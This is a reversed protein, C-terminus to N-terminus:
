SGCTGGSRRWGGARPRRRCGCRALVARGGRVGCWSSRCGRGGVPGGRRGCGRRGDRVGLWGAFRTEFWGVRVGRLMSRAGRRDPRRIGCGRAAWNRVGRWGWSWGRARVCSEGWAWLLVTSDAADGCGSCIPTRLRINTPRRSNLANRRTKTASRRAPSVKARANAATRRRRGTGVIVSVVPANNRMAPHNAAGSASRKRCGATRTAATTPSRSANRGRSQTTAPKLECAILLQRREANASCNRDEGGGPMDGFRTRASTPTRVPFPLWQSKM